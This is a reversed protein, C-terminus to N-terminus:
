AVTATGATAVGGGAQMFGMIRAFEMVRIRM